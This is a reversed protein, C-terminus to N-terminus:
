LAPWWPGSRSIRDGIDGLVAQIFDGQFLDCFGSRHRMASAPDRLIERPVLTQGVEWTTRIYESAQSATSLERSKEAQVCTPDLRRVPRPQGKTQRERGAGGTVM